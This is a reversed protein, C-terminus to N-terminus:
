HREGVTGVLTISCAGTGGSVMIVLPDFFVRKM